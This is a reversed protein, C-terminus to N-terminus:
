LVCAEDKLIEVMIKILKEADDGVIPQKGEEDLEYDMADIYDIALERLDEASNCHLLEDGTAFFSFYVTNNVLVDWKFPSYVFDIKM